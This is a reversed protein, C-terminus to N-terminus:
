TKNERWTGAEGPLLALLKVMTVAILLLESEVLHAKTLTSMVHVYFTLLKFLKSHKKLM